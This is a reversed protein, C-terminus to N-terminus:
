EGENFNNDIFDQDNFKEAEDSELGDLYDNYDIESVTDMEDCAVCHEHEGDEYM